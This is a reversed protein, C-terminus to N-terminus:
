FLYTLLSLILCLNGGILIYTLRKIFTRKAEIFSPVNINESNRYLKSSFSHIFKATSNPFIVGFLYLLMLILAFVLMLLSDNNLGIQSIFIINFISLIVFLLMNVLTIIKKKM